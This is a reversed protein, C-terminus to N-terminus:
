GNPFLRGFDAMAMAVDSQAWFRHYRFTPVAGGALYNAVQPWAQDQTYWSRISEFTSSSNIPDGNAMTGTFTNPVFVPDDFRNYDARSEVTTVGKSDQNPTAWMADLLNKALDHSATDGSRASYYTLTKALAATVGVDQSTNLISVHLGTNAGPTTPNWTDPAGSWSLDGPITWTGAAVNVTTNARVWSVWKDLVTKAKADGTQNYYEAVREMPWAQFGFWQNSPPDHYVPQFDYAMGYFTPDGAPPTAYRGAWSNSAGGAIGGESSQLWRFFELQKTLSGAWDAAATPSQPKLAPITSLAWAALPNQYAQHAQGSGIRWAWSGDAAGGWAYYWTLLGTSADKGTGAPCTTPGVCNGVKKFYKDYFSYRLYDGM